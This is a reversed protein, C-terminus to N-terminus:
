GLKAMNKVVLEKYFITLDKAYLKLFLLPFITPLIRPDEIKSIGNYDIPCITFCNHNPLIVLYCIINVTFHLCTLYNGQIGKVWIRHNWNCIYDSYQTRKRYWISFFFALVSEFRSWARSIVSAKNVWHEKTLCLIQLFIVTLLQLTWLFLFNHRTLFLDHFIKYATLKTEM